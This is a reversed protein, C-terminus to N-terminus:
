SNNQLFLEIYKYGSGTNFVLVSESTRVLGERILRRVASVTAAGEPCLFIGELAAVRRMDSLLEDDSVAIATGGSEYLASLILHDAFAKPVRLGSAITQADEWFESEKKHEQFAKVIPACGSTQVSVMRPRKGSIWGLEEMEHFAKWMGILGTGGGTPYIIVDPLNWDFQEAIEYGMTKKGELRYPEKMTSMDFWNKGQREESMKKAADSITGDVLVVEAGYLVVENINVAPTDKPVFINAKIDAKAAYAALAGGANGASPMAAEHIGLEKAKSVAVCLGRAKFSGTPNLGEDKIYLNSLGLKAGIKQAHLIPTWGEGLSVISADDVVPLLERYRWLTGARSALTEPKLNKKVAALDYEALLTKGCYRCITQVENAQHIKHCVSCRLHSFYTTSLIYGEFTKILIGESKNFLLPL